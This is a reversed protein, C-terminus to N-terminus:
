QEVEQKVGAFMVTGRTKTKRWAAKDGTAM